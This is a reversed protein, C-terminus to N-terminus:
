YLKVKLFCKIAHLKQRWITMCISGQSQNTFLIIITQDCCKNNHVRFYFYGRGLGVGGEKKNNLLCNRRQKCEGEGQTYHQKYLCTYSCFRQGRCYKHSPLPCERSALLQVAGWALYIQLYLLMFWKNILYINKKGVLLFLFTWM